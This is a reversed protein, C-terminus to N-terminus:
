LYGCLRYVAIGLFEKLAVTIRHLASAEPLLDFVEWQAENVMQLDTPASLVIVGDKRFATLARPM